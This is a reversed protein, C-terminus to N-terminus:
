SIVAQDIVHEVLQPFEIRSVRAAVPFPSTDTLTPIADTELVYVKTGNVIMDTQSYHRLGLAKHATRATDQIKKLMEGFFSVPLLKTAGNYRTEYDFIRGEPPIIEIPHMAFHKQGDFNELVACAVERGWVYEEALVNDDFEFAYEFAEPLDAYTPVVTIGVSSGRSAPKVIWPPSSLAIVEPVAKHLNFGEKSFAVGRPVLLGSNKFVDRSIIKNMALSAAASGAGTYRVGSHDFIQQLHGDEGFEGHIANFIVDHHGCLQIPDYAQGQNNLLWNGTPTVYIQNVAYSQERLARLVNRGSTISVEHESSPGGMVVGIKLNKGM